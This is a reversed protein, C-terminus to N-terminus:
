KEAPIVSRQNRQKSVRRYDQHLRLCEVKSSQPKSMLNSALFRHLFVLAEEYLIDEPSFDEVERLPALVSTPRPKTVKQNVSSPPPPPSVVAPAPASVSSVLPPPLIDPRLLSSLPAFWVIAPTPRRQDFPNSSLINNNSEGVRQYFNDSTM